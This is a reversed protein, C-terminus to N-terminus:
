NVSLNYQNKMKDIHNESYILNFTGSENYSMYVMKSHLVFGGRSLFGESLVGESLVWGPM